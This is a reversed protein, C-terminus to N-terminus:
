AGARRLARGQLGPQGLQGSRAQLQGARDAALLPHGGALLEVDDLRVPVGGHEARRRVGRVAVGLVGDAAGLLGRRSARATRRRGRRTKRRAASRSAPGHRWVSLAAVM